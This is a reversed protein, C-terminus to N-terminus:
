LRFVGLFPLYDGRASGLVEGVARFSACMARQGQANILLWVIIAGFFSAALFLMTLLRANVPDKNVEEAPALFLATGDLPPANGNAGQEVHLVSKMGLASPGESRSASLSLLSLCLLVAVVGLMGRAFWGAKSNSRWRMVECAAGVAVLARRAKTNTHM